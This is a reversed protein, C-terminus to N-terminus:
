EDHPVAPDPVQGDALEVTLADESVVIHRAVSVRNEVASSSM